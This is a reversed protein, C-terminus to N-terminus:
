SDVTEDLTYIESDWFYELGATDDKQWVRRAMVPDTLGLIAIRFEYPLAVADRTTIRCGTKSTDCITCDALYNFNQDLITAPIAVEQRPARQKHNKPTAKWDFEVGAARRNRWIIHGKVIEELESVKLFIDDSLEGIAGSEIKCGSISGDRIVCPIHFKRLSDIAVAPLAANFRHSTPEDIQKM